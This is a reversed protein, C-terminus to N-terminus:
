PFLYDRCFSTIRELLNAEQGTWEYDTIMDGKKLRGSRNQSRAKRLESKLWKNEEKLQECTEDLYKVRKVDNRTITNGAVIFYKGINDNVEGDDDNDDEM